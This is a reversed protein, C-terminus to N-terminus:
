VCGRIFPVRISRPFPKACLACDMLQEFVRWPINARRQSLASDSIEQATLQKVNDAFTGSDQGVHFVLGSIVKELPLQAPRRKAPGYDKVIADLKQPPVLNDFQTQFDGGVFQSKSRM